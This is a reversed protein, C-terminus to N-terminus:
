RRQKPPAADNMLHLGEVRPEPPLAPKQAPRAPPPVASGDSAQEWPEPHHALGTMMGLAHVPEYREDVHVPGPVPFLPPPRTPLTAASAVLASAGVAALVWARRPPAPCDATVVTGDSRRFLQVCLSGEHEQLLKEAAERTMASLNYVHKSCHHCFRVRDDGAMAHWSMSCPRAVRAVDLMPLRRASLRAEVAALEERLDDRRAELAADEDRYPM